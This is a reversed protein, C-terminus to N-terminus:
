HSKLVSFNSLNRLRLDAEFVRWIRKHENPILPRGPVEKLLIQVIKQGDHIWSSLEIIRYEM